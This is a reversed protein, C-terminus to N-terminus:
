ARRRAVVRGADGCRARGVGRGGGRRGTRREVADGTKTCYKLHNLLLRRSGGAARSRRQGRVAPAAAARAPVGTQRARSVDRRVRHPALGAEPSPDAGRACEPQRRGRIRGRVHSRVRSAAVQVNSRARRAAARQEPGSAPRRTGDRRAAARRAGRAAARAVRPGDAAGGGGAGSARCAGGQAGVPAARSRADGRRVARRCAAGRRSSCPRARRHPPPPTAPPRKVRHVGHPGGSERPTRHRRAVRLTRGPWRPRARGRRWCAAAGGCAGGGGLAGRWLRARPAGREACPAAPARQPPATGEWAPRQSQHHGRVCFLLRTAPSAPRNGESFRLPDPWPEPAPTRPRRQVPFLPEREPFV